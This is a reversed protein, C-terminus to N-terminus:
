ELSEVTMDTMIQHTKQYFQCLIPPEPLSGYCEARGLYGAPIGKARLVGKGPGDPSFNSVRFVGVLLM